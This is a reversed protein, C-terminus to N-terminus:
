LATALGLISVLMLGCGIIRNFFQRDGSVLHSHLKLGFWHGLGVLPLMALALRWQLDVGAGVFTSLKVIVLVIWVVFMTDRLQRAPLQRTSVAMILPAGILSVGSVYGGFTLCFADVWRNGSVLVRNLAYMLGYSLTVAYVVISLFRGSLNLLGFLGAAFPIAIVLVLRLLYRWDVNAIRSAVTLSSFLLLHLCIAPLLLVPENVVMLMLPLALAAGGFGLGSRVFGSWLFCLSLALLQWVSLTAWFSGELFM